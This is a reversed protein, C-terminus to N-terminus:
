KHLLTYAGILAVVGILPQGFRSVPLIGVWYEKLVLDKGDKVSIRLSHYTKFGIM